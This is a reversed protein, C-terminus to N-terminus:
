FCNTSDCKLQWVILLQFTCKFITALIAATLSFHRNKMGLFWFCLVKYLVPVWVGQNARKGSDWQVESQGDYHQPRLRHIFVIKVRNEELMRKSPLVFGVNTNKIMECRQISAWLIMLQAVCGYTHSVRWSWLMLDRNSHQPANLCSRARRKRPDRECVSCTFLTISEMKPHKTPCHPTVATPPSPGEECKSRNMKVKWRMQVCKRLCSALLDFLCSGVATTLTDLGCTPTKAHSHTLTQLFNRWKPADSVQPKGLVRLNKWAALSKRSLRRRSDQALTWLDHGPQSGM